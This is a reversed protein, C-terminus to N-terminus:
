YNVLFMKPSENNRAVVVLTKDDVTRLSAIGRVAGDIHFGSQKPAHSALTGDEQLRLVGGYSADYPGAM